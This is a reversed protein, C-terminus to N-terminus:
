IIYLTKSTIGTSICHKIVHLIPGFKSATTLHTLDETMFYILAKACSTFVPLLSCFFYSLSYLTSLLLSSLSSFCFLFFLSISIHIAIKLLSYLHLNACLFTSLSILCWSFTCSFILSVYKYVYWFSKCSCTFIIALMLKQHSHLAIIDITNQQHSYINCDVSFLIHCKKIFSFMTSNYSRVIANDPCKYWLFSLKCERFFRWLFTM